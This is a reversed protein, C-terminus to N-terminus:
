RGAKSPLTARSAILRGGNREVHTSLMDAFEQAAQSAPVIYVRLKGGSPSGGFSTLEPTMPTASGTAGPSLPGSSGGRTGESPSASTSAGGGASGASFSGGAEAAVIAWKGAATLHEAGAWWDRVAFSAIAKAVEVAGEIEAMTRQGLLYNGIFELNAQIGAQAVEKTEQASQAMAQGFARVRSEGSQMAETM